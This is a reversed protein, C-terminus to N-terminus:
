RTVTTPLWQVHSRVQGVTYSALALVIAGIVTYVARRRDSLKGTAAAARNSLARHLSAVQDDKFDHLEHKTEDAGREVQMLRTTLEALVTRFSNMTESLGHLEHRIGTFEGLLLDLNPALTRFVDLQAHLEHIAEVQICEQGNEHM